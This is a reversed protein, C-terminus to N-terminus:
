AATIGYYASEMQALVYKLESAPVNRHELAPDHLRPEGEAALDFNETESPPSDDITEEVAQIANCAWEAGRGMEVGNPNAAMGALVRSAAALRDAPTINNTNTNM